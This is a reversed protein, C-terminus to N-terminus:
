AGSTAAVRRSRGGLAKVADWITILFKNWNTAQAFRTSPYGNSLYAISRRKEEMKVSPKEIWSPFWVSLGTSQSLKKTPDQPSYGSTVVFSELAALVADCAKSVASGPMTTKLFKCFCGLDIFGDPDFMPCYNRAEFIGTMSNPNSVAATLANALPKMAAELADIQALDVASIAVYDDDEGMYSEIFADTIMKAVTRPDSKPHLLLRRLISGLPWDQYSIPTQSALGFEACGLFESWVEAMAMECSAFGLIAPKRQGSLSPIANRVATGVQANPIVEKSHSDLILNLWNPNNLQLDSLQPIKERLTETGSPPVIMSLADIGQGGAHMHAGPPVYDDLGYGHGWLVIMTNKAPCEAAAWEIFAVISRPDASNVNPISVTPPITTPGSGTLLQPLVYRRTLKGPLDIQVAVDVNSSSGVSTLQMLNKLASAHIEAQPVDVAFYVFLAWDKSPANKNAM